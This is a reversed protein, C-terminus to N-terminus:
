ADAAALRVGVQEAQARRLALRGGGVRLAVPGGLPARRLVEVQAGHRLGLETLRQRLLPPVAVETVVVPTRLPIDALTV